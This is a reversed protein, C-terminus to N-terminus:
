GEKGSACEGNNRGLAFACDCAAYDAEARTMDCRPCKRPFATKIVREWRAFFSESKARETM